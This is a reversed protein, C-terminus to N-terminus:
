ICIMAQSVCTLYLITQIVKSVNAYTFQMTRPSRHTRWMSNRSEPRKIFAFSPISLCVTIIFIFACYFFLLSLLFKYRLPFLLSHLLLMHLENCKIDNDRGQQKSTWQEGEATKSRLPIHLFRGSAACIHVWELTLKMSHGNQRRYGNPLFNFSLCQQNPRLKLYDRHVGQLCIPLPPIAGRMRLRTVLHLHNTLMSYPFACDM